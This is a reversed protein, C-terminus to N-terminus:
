ASCAQAAINQFHTASRDTANVVPLHNVPANVHFEVWPSWMSGDSASVWLDDSGSATQFSTSGLQAATITITQSPGQAVGGVVWHDSAADPTSDYFKYATIADGDSDSVSFLSSAAFNQLHTASRDSASVM